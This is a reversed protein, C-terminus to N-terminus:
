AKVGCLRVLLRFVLHRDMWSCQTSASCKYLSLRWEEMMLVMGHWVLHLICRLVFLFAYQTREMSVTGNGIVGISKSSVPLDEEKEHSGDRWLEITVFTFVVLYSKGKERQNGVLHWFLSSEATIHVTIYKGRWVLADRFEMTFALCMNGNEQESAFGSGFSSSHSTKTM